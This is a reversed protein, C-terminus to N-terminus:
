PDDARVDGPIDALVCHTHKCVNLIGDTRREERLREKVLYDESPQVLKFRKAKDIEWVLDSREEHNGRANL